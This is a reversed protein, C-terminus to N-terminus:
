TIPSRAARASTMRTSPPPTAPRDGGASSSARIPGSSGSGIPSAEFEATVTMTLAAPDKQVATVTM